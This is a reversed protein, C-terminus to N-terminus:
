AAKALRARALLDAYSYRAKRDTVPSDYILAADGGRGAAVHRDVCNHCTNGTADPFWRGYVGQEGDFIRGPKDFWEIAEAVETELKLEEDALRHTDNTAAM